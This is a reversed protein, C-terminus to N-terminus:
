YVNLISMVERWPIMILVKIMLCSFIWIPLQIDLAADDIHKCYSFVLFCLKDTIQSSYHRLWAKVNLYDAMFHEAQVNFNDWIYFKIIWVSFWRPCYLRIPFFSDLQQWLSLYILGKIETVQQHLDKM